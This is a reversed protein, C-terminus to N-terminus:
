KITDILKYQTVNETIVTFGNAELKEKGSASIGDNALVKM